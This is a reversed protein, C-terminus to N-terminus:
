FRAVIVSTNDQRPRDREEVARLLDKVVETASAGSQAIQGITSVSLTDLGDSALILTDDAQIPVLDITEDMRMDRLPEGMIVSTISNRDRRALADQRSMEGRAVAADLLGGISHDANLRYAQGRRVLYLPSDGMSFFHVGKPLLRVALLTGGMGSLDPEDSSRAFIVRNAREAGMRLIRGPPSGGAQCGEAYVQVLSDVILRAALDGAAAGGMGDSLVLLEAEKGTDPFRAICDEQRERRGLLQGMDIAPQLAM